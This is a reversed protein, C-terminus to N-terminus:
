QQHSVPIFIRFPLTEYAQNLSMYDRSWGGVAYITAGLVTVGPNRWEGVIPTEVAQWSDERPSYRENFGLYSSWGGGGIAYLQGGIAVLGLGGRGVALPSCESWGQSAPEFAACVALENEGNYGGIVYLRDDLSAAGAFGRAIGMRPLARWANAAPDYEYATAVYQEGDWGGFLYLKENHAVLAYACRPEPLASVERWVDDQLNYAEVVRTPRSEGDCGGPVYVENGITAASIYASPLPKESLPTWMDNEPDYAEVAGTVGEPTQGGIALLRDGAATLALHARRTPMQAREQWASEGGPPLGSVLSSQSRDLPLDSDTGAQSESRPWTVVVGFVLILLAGLLAIRKSWPLPPMPVAEARRVGEEGGAGESTAQDSNDVPVWGERVAIMTAETRSDAGLKTYVNRLHVKVTNVSIFLKQAVERNTIGTAVLELVEKERDTLPEGQEAM